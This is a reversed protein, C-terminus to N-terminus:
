LVVPPSALGRTRFNSRWKPSDMPEHTTLLHLLVDIAIRLEARALSAGLCSHPGHGFVLHPNPSRRIDLVDADLFRTSDRNASALALIVTDGKAIRTGGITIDETAFRRISLLTPDAYRLFEEVAMPLLTPERRLARILNPNQCLLLAAHSIVHSVNEIGALMVLFALSVLENEDLQDGGTGPLSGHRCCTTGPRARRATVLGAVFQHLNKIADPVDGPHAPHLMATACDAFNKRQQEPVGLIGGIVALPLPAAYDAVLDAHGAQAISNALEM